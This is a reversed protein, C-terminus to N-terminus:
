CYLCCTQLGKKKTATPAGNTM